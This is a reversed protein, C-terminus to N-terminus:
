RGGAYRARGARRGAVRASWREPVAM